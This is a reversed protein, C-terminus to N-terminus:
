EETEGKVLPKANLMLNDSEDFLRVKLADIEKLTRIQYKLMTEPWHGLDERRVVLIFAPLLPIRPDRFVWYLTQLDPNVVFYQVNQTWYEEPVKREFFTMLHKASGLHKVEVEETVKGEEDAAAIYGDPSMVIRSDISSSFGGAHSVKKGTYEEFWSIGAAEEGSGREMANYYTDLNGDILEDKPAIAVQDALVQYFEKKKEQDQSLLEKDEETLFQDELVKKTASKKYDVGRSDLLATIDNKTYARSSWISGLRTGSIVGSLKWAHWEPTGQEFENHILM